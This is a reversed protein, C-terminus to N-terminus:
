DIERQGFEGRGDFRRADPKGQRELQEATLNGAFAPSIRRELQKCLEAHKLLAAATDELIGDHLARAGSYLRGGHRESIGLYRAHPRIGGIADVAAQYLELQETPTRPM